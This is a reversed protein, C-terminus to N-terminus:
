AERAHWADNISVPYWGFDTFRMRSISANDIQFRRLYASDFGLISQLATRISGGHMVLAVVRNGSSTAERSGNLLRDEIWGMVRRQLLRESEVGDGAQEGYVWWAGAREYSKQEQESLRQDYPQGGRTAVRLEDLARVREFLPAAGMAGLMVDASEVARKLSSSYVANFVVGDAQLRRGLLTMQARGRETLDPDPDFPARPDRTNGASEGHRILYLDLGTLTHAM